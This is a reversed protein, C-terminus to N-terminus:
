ARSERRGSNAQFFEYFSWTSSAVLSRRLSRPMLGRFLVLHSNPSSLITDLTSCAAAQNVQARTKLVDLPNTIASAVLGSVIGYYFNLLFAPERREDNNKKVYAFPDVLQQSRLKTYCMYYIGSFLSDRLLTPWVGVWNEKAYSKLMASTLSSYNYLGSEYRVKIVTVPLLSFSVLSRSLLGFYFAQIASDPQKHHSSFNKQLGTLFGYYLGVGPVSRLM